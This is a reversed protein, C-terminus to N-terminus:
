GSKEPGRYFIDLHGKFVQALRTTSRGSRLDKIRSGIGLDYYRIVAASEPEQRAGEMAVQTFLIRLAKELAAEKPGKVWVELSRLSPEHFLCVSMDAEEVLRTRATELPQLGSKVASVFRKDPETGAPLIDVRILERDEHEKERGSHPHHSRYRHDIQHLGSEPRLLAYAGLGSIQVWARDTKADYFEGLVEGTMRRRGALGLYMAALKAVANQATGTRDILSLCVLADGLDLADRCAAVLRLQDLEAAQQQLQDRLSAEDSKPVPRQEIRHQLREQVTRLRDYWALFQDLKHIEDFTAERAQRNQYFGPEQTRLLLESKRDALPRIRPELAALDDGLRRAAQRLPEEPPAAPTVPKPEASQTLRVQVEGKHHTLVLVAKGSIRGSAIVRALPLLCFREVTRKLPRAGFHPSYGERVLLSIVSPDVEVALARRAIGSRQLVLDIERRAIREAVELSLARFPVIRDIRNLFEPRFFRTLERFTRDKDPEILDVEPTGGFGLPTTPGVSGINSTLILITRRFDATRGHGDTLRGADFIQLCLDFVNLHSKEIEDLLVVSFPHRRVADTLLGNEQKGGILREFGDASAYESMDFRQLRGPDGFIYEALARALETKGVGTPGTFFFVGFPKGPDTLGAKILTVLDIVAEVAEPQGMIRTEFFAKVEDLRLPVSDDLLNAPLGTSKSLAGLVDRATVPESSDKHAAMLDRLLLVANGPRSLHSLYQTAFDLLRDLVEGAVPAKAEDRVATLIQRTREVTAEPLLVKDFLRQLSPISGLGREYEAPTSEGLLVLAGEELYPALASAVNSDSKSWRGVSSLDSLNPVYILVRRPKRVAEVLERVRTEWEGMFHTGAMFDSPSVRLVHWGGNEPKALQYVLENVLASKGAGAEGILAVPRWHERRLLNVLAQCPEEVGHARPLSGEAALVTLDTGFRALEAPDVAVTTRRRVWELLKPFRQGGIEGLARDVKLLLAIEGPLEKGISAPAKSFSKEILEACRSRLDADTDRALANFLDAAVVATTQEGLASAAALRVGWEPDNALLSRQLSLFAPRGATAKVAAMRVEGDADEALTGLPTDIYEAPLSALLEPLRVRVRQEPDQVLNLLADIVPAESLGRSAELGALRLPVQPARLLALILEVKGGHERLAAALLSIKESPDAYQGRRLDDILSQIEDSM